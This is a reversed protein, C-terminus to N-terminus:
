LFRAFILYWKELARNWRASLIESDALSQGSLRSPGQNVFASQMALMEPNIVQHSGRLRLNM